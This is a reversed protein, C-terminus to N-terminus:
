RAAAIYFLDPSLRFAWAALRSKLDSAYDTGIFRMADKVPYDRMLQRYLEKKHGRAFSHAVAFVARYPMYLAFREAFPHHISKLYEATRGASEILDTMRPNVTQTASTSHQRYYYCVKPLMVATECHALYKTIFEIDEGYKCGPTFRIGNKNLISRRYVFSQFGLRDKSYTYEELLKAATADTLARDAESVAELKERAKSRYSAMTDCRHVRMFASVAALYGPAFLDDSDLFLIYDGAAEDLARNRAASVGANDQRICRLPLDSTEMYRAIVDATGDTSGDDILLAEFDRFRGALSDLTECITDRCNYCPIVVSIEAM